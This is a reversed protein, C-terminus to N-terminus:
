FNKLDIKKFLNINEVKIIKKKLIASITQTNYLCIYQKEPGKAFFSMQFEFSHTTIKDNKTIHGHGLLIHGPVSWM